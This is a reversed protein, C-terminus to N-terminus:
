GFYRYPLVFDMTLLLLDIPLDLLCLGTEIGNGFLLLLLVLLLFGNFLTQIGQILRLFFPGFLDVLYLSQLFQDTAVLFTCGTRQLCDTFLYAPRLPFRVPM